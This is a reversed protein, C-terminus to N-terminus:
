EPFWDDHTAANVRVPLDLRACAALLRVPVDLIFRGDGHGVQLVLEAFKGAARWERFVEVPWQELQGALRDVSERVQALFPEYPQNDEPLYERDVLQIGCNGGPGHFLHDILTPPALKANDDPHCRLMVSFYELSM